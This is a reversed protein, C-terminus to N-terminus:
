LQLCRAIAAARQYGAIHASTQLDDLFQSAYYCHMKSNPHVYEWFKYGSPDSCFERAGYFQGRVNGIFCPQDLRTFGFQQSAEITEQNIEYAQFLTLTLQGDQAALGELMERLAKNHLATAEFLTGDSPKKSGRPDRNIGGLEPTTGIVFKKFGLSRMDVIAKKIDLIAQDVMVALKVPDAQGAEDEIRTGRMLYNNAGIWITILTKEPDMKKLRHRNELIQQLLSPVAILEKFGWTRTEAGGVAYNEVRWGLASGAYDAWVPGNSFRSRYYVQKPLYIGLTRKHLNGPDSLSDGFVVMKDIGQLAPEKVLGALWRQQDPKVLDDVRPGKKFLEPTLSDVGNQALLALPVMLVMAFIMYALRNM